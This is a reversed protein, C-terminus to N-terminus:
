GVMSIVAVVVMVLLALANLFPAMWLLRVLRSLQLSGSRAASFVGMAQRIGLYTVLLPLLVLVLGIPTFVVALLGAFGRAMEVFLVTLLLNMALIIWQRSTM